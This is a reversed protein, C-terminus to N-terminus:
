PLDCRGFPMTGRMAAMKYGWALLALVAGVVLV